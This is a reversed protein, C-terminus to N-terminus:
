ENIGTHKTMAEWLQKEYKNWQKVQDSSNEVVAAVDKDVSNQWLTYTAERMARSGIHGDRYAQTATLFSRQAEGFDKANQDEGSHLSDVGNSINDRLINLQKAIRATNESKLENPLKSLTKPIDNLLHDYKGGSNM